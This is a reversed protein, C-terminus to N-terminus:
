IILLIIGHMEYKAFGFTCKYYKAGLKRISNIDSEPIKICHYNHYDHITQFTKQNRSKYKFFIRYWVFHSIYLRNVLHRTM